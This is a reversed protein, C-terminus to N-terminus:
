AAQISSRPSISDRYLADPTAVHSSPLNFSPNITCFFMEFLLPSNKEPTRNMKETACSIAM